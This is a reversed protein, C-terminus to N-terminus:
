HVAKTGRCSRISPDVVQGLFEVVSDIERSVPTNASSEMIPYTEM